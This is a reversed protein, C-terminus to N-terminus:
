PLDEPDILGERKLFRIHAALDSTPGEEFEKIYKKNAAVGASVFARAFAEVAAPPTKENIGYRHGLWGIDKAILEEWRRRKSYKWLVIPLREYSPETYHNEAMNRGAEAGLKKAQAATM